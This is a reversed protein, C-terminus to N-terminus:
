PTRPCSRSSRIGRLLQRVAYQKVVRYAPRYADRYRASHSPQDVRGDMALAMHVPVADAEIEGSEILDLIINLDEVMVDRADAPISQAADCFLGFVEEPVIGNERCRYLSVRCLGSGISLYVPDDNPVCIDWEALFYRRAKERDRILHGPGYANQFALKILDEAQMLPYRAMHDLVIEDFRM